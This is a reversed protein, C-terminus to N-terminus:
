GLREGRVRDRPQLSQLFSFMSFVRNSLLSLPTVMKRPLARSSLACKYEVHPPRQAETNPTLYSGRGGSGQCKGQGVGCCAM